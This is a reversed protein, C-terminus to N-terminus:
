LPFIVAAASSSPMLRGVSYSNISFSPIARTDHNPLYSYGAPSRPNDPQRVVVVLAIVAQLGCTCFLKRDFQVISWCIATDSDRVFPALPIRRRFRQCRSFAVWDDGYTCPFSLTLRRVNPSHHNRSAGYVLPM